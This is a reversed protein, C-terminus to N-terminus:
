RYRRGRRTTQDTQGTGTTGGRTGRGRGGRQEYKEQLRQLREDDAMWKQEIKQVREQRALMLGEIAATTQKAQEEVAVEHLGGLEALDLEHVSRLLGQKDAPNANVWAQIQSETEQDIPPENPDQGRGVVPTRGAYDAYADAGAPTSMQGPYGGRATRGSSRGRGRGYASRSQQLMARRIERLEDAILEYRTKRRGALDDIAAVTKQAEEKEAIKKVFTMEEVFRREVARILSTRNDSRRQAWSREESSSNADVAKLAAELGQFSKIKAKIANPDDLIDVRGAPPAYASPAPRQPTTQMPGYEDYGPGYPGYRGDTLVPEKAGKAKLFEVIETYRRQQAITLPTQRRNDEANVNAGAKVLAEAIDKYGYQAAIHLATMQYMDPTMPDAGRSLLLIAVETQGRQTARMLPTKGDPPTFNVTAGAEVLLKAADLGGFEAAHCLPSIGRGDARNVDTGRAIHLKIQELDGNMAAVHLSKTPNRSEDAARVPGKGILLLALGWILITSRKV